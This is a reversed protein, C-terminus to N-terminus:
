YQFYIFPSYSSNVMCIVAFVMLLLLVTEQVALGAKTANLRQKIRQFWEMRLLTAGLVAVIMYIVIKRSLFYAWTFNIDTFVLSGFMVKMFTTFDEMLPFRFLQWSFFVIVMTAIWKIANPVKKYLTKDKSLREIIMFFGNLAGWWIYNWGAGHWIGTTLFVIGLNM